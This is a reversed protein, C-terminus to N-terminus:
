KQLIDNIVYSALYLGAVAPVTIISGLMKGEAKIQECSSVVIFKGKINEKRLMYRLKKALPDYSTKDLTTISLKEPEIKKATGMSSILKYGYIDRYKMLLFKVEITDCADIIYDYKNELLENLNDISLKKDISLINVNPNILKARSSAELVKSKGVNFSNTIVQRNLNSEDILDYDVIMINSFGSRVLAELAYGGVGGIGIILVKVNTFKKYNENGILSILRDFMVEGM